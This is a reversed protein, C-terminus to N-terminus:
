DCQVKGQAGPPENSELALYQQCLHEMGAALWGIEFTFRVPAALTTASLAM